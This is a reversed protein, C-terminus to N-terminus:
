SFTHSTFPSYSDFPLPPPIHSGSELSHINSPYLSFINTVISVSVSIKRIENKEYRLLNEIIAVSVNEM